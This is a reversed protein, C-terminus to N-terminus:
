RLGQYFLRLFPASGKRMQLQLLFGEYSEMGDVLRRFTRGGDVQPSHFTRDCQPSVDISDLSTHVWSARHKKELTAHLEALKKRVIKEGDGAMVATIVQGCLDYQQGRLDQALM